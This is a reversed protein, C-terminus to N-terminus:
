ITQMSILYWKRIQNVIFYCVMLGRLKENLKTKFYLETRTLAKEPRNQSKSPTIQSIRNQLRRRKREEEWIFALGPNNPMNDLILFHKYEGLNNHCIADHWNFIYNIGSNTYPNNIDFVSTDVELACYSQKPINCFGSNIIENDESRDLVLKSILLLHKILIIILINLKTIKCNIDDQRIYYSSLVIHSM